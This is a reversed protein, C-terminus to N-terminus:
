RRLLGYGDPALQIMRAHTAMGSTYASRGAFDFRPIAGEVGARSRGRAREWRPAAQAGAGLDVSITQFLGFEGDGVGLALM